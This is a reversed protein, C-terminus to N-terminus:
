LDSSRYIVVAGALLGTLKFVSIPKHMVKDKMVKQNNSTASYSKKTTTTEQSIFIASVRKTRFSAVTM